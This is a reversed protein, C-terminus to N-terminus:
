AHNMWLKYKQPQLENELSKLLNCYKKFIYIFFFIKFGPRVTSPRVIAWPKQGEDQGLPVVARDVRALWRPV